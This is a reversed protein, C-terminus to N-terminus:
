VQRFTIDATRTSNENFLCKKGHRFTNQSVTQIQLKLAKSHLEM